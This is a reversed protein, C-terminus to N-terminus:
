GAPGVLVAAPGPWRPWADVLALAPALGPSEIVDERSPAATWPWDLVLQEPAARFGFDLQATM